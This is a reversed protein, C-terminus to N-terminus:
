PLLLPAGPWVKSFLEDGLLLRFLALKAQNDDYHPHRQRIAELAIERADESMQAGINVRQESSMHRYVSARVAAADPTTDRTSV